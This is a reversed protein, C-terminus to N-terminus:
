AAPEATVEKVRAILLDVSETLIHGIDSNYAMLRRICQSQEHTLRDTATLVCAAVGRRGLVYEIMAWEIESRTSLQCDDVEGLCRSVLAEAIRTTSEADLTGSIPDNSYDDGTEFEVPFDDPSPLALSRGTKQVTEEYEQRSEGRPTM